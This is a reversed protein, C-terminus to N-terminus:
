AEKEGTMAMERSLFYNLSTRIVVIAGLKGIQNWTPSVATSLIDAAVQFELALTLYNAMTMRIPKFGDSTQRILAMVFKYLSIFAGLTIVFAGIFEVGLRLWHIAWSITDEAVVPEPLTIFMPVQM